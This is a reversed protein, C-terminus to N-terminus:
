RFKKTLRMKLKHVLNYLPSSIFPLLSLLLAVALFLVVSLPSLYPHAFLFGAASLLYCLLLSLAFGVITALASFANFILYDSPNNACKGMPVVFNLDIKIVIFFCVVGVFVSLLGYITDDAQIFSVGSYVGTGVFFSFVLLFLLDAYNKRLYALLASGFSIETGRSPRNTNIIKPKQDKTLPQPKSSTKKACKRLFFCPYPTRLIARYLSKAHKENDMIDGDILLYMVNMDTLSLLASALKEEGEAENNVPMQSLPALAAALLRKFDRHSVGDDVAFVIRISAYERVTLGLMYVKSLDDNSAISFNDGHFSGAELSSFRFSLFDFLKRDASSLDTIQYPFHFNMIESLDDDSEKIQLANIKIM